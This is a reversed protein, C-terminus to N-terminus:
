LLEKVTRRVSIKQCLIELVSRRTCSKNCFEERRPIFLTQEPHLRGQIKWKKTQSWPTNSTNKLVFILTSKIESM